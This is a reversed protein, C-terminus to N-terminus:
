PLPLFCGSIVLLYVPHFNLCFLFPEGSSLIIKLDFPRSSRSFPYIDTRTAYFCAELFENMQFLYFFIARYIADTSFCPIM